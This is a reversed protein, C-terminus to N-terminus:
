PLVWESTLFHPYNKPLIKQNETIKNKAENFSRVCTVNAALYVELNTTYLQSLLENDSVVLIRNM